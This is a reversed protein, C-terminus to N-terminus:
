FLSEGNLAAACPSSGRSVALTARMASSRPRWAISRRWKDIDTFCRFAENALTVGSIPKRRRSKLYLPREANHRRAALM